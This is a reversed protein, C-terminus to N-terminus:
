NLEIFKAQFTECLLVYMKFMALTAVFANASEVQVRLKKVFAKTVSIHSTENHMM